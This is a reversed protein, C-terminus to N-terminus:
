QGRVKPYPYTKNRKEFIKRLQKTERKNQGLVYVYKHKPEIKRRECSNQFEKSLQKIRLVIDEPMNDFLVRDREQWDDEWVIGDAKALRKYVSRSRFYRDSTWKEENVKYQYQAGSTKGIYYFNSAQYVTGLEKAETDSYAIFVRFRTNKVMWNMSFAILKSALNKPSWSICAGRSILREVKRTDEGILKSFANPMDMVIVGGLIGKYRATFFHTPYLSLRGLWEYREIFAKVEDFIEAKEEFQITFDSTKLNDVEEQSFGCNRIDEDYTKQRMNYQWCVDKTYTEATNTM